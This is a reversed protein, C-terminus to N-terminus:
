KNLGQFFSQFNQPLKELSLEQLMEHYGKIEVELMEQARLVGCVNVINVKCENMLDKTADEFDDLIQFAMGFHASLRKVKDLDKISGGGFLWGFVFSIEFLSVTKKHLIERLSEESLKQPFLDLFQGGTAGYLGSNIAANELTLVCVDGGFVPLKKANKAIRENGSAILAYSALLAITEGYIRHLAPKCRREDDNDMCPLDDAILSATHFYEVALAAESVDFGHGLAEAVMLVLAPRFRKGGNLLAYECADRLRTKPGLEDISSAIKQDVKSKFPALPDEYILNM